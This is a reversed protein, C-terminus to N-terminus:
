LLFLYPGIGVRQFDRLFVPTTIRRGDVYVGNVSRLDSLQLGEPLREILAHYRSVTPHQLRIDCDSARGFVLKPGLAFLQDLVLTKRAGVGAAQSVALRVTSQHIGTASPDHLVHGCQSCFRNEAPNVAQCHSCVLMTLPGQPSFRTPSAQSTGRSRDSVGPLLAALALLDRLRTGRAIRRHRPRDVALASEARLGGDPARGRRPPGRDAKGDRWAALASHRQGPGNGAVRPLSRRRELAAADADPQPLA